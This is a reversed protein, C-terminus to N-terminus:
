AARKIIANNIAAHVNNATCIRSRLRAPTFLNYICAFHMHSAQNAPPHVRIALQTPAYVIATCMYDTCQFLSKGSIIGDCSVDQTITHVMRSASQTDMLCVCTHSVHMICKV